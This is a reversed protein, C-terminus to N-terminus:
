RARQEIKGGLSDLDQLVARANTWASLQESFSMHPQVIGRVEEMRQNGTIRMATYHRQARRWESKRGSDEARRVLRVLTNLEARAERTMDSLLRHEAPSVKQRYARAYEGTLELVNSRILTADATIAGAASISPAWAFFGVLMATILAAVRTM